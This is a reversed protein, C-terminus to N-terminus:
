FFCVIRQCHLKVFTCIKWGSSAERFWTQVLMHKCCMEARFNLMHSHNRYVSKALFIFLCYFKVTLMLFIMMGMANIVRAKAPQLVRGVLLATDNGDKEVSAWRPPRPSMGSFVMGAIFLAM